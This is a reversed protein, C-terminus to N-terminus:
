NRQQPYPLTSASNLLGETDGDTDPRYRMGGEDIAHGPHLSDQEFETSQEDGGKIRRHKGKDGLQANQM